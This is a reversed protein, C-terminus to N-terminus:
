MGFDQAFPRVISKGEQLNVGIIVLGDDKHRSYSDVFQPIEKRCPACWTAWFNLVVPHRRFDSLHMEGGDLRELLFDPALAGENTSVDLGAPHLAAPLPAPGYREGTTPSVGAESRHELWWIAAVIAAIVLLPYVVRRLVRPGTRDTRSGESALSEPAHLNDTM